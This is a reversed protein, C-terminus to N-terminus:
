GETPERPLFPGPPLSPTMGALVEPPLTEPPLGPPPETRRGIEGARALAMRFLVPGVAENVLISGLLFTGVDRSWAWPGALVLNALALAIGAQPFLGFPIRQALDPEVGVARAAARAGIWLGVARASAAGVALVAMSAFADLHVEAGIVAFFVALTPLAAAHTRRAVAEGSARTANEIVVGATLGALLPDVHLFGGIEAVLFLVVFVFLGVRRHVREVYLAVVGGLAAGIAMSGLFHLLLGVLVGDGGDGAGPFAADVLTSTLAYTVVIALDALIVLSLSMEALPGQARTETLIGIVVAPSLAALVNAILLAVVMRETGRLAATAPIAPLVTWAFLFLCVLAGFLAAGGIAGVRALRPRLAALNLELGALLAILGVAVRKVLALEHLMTPTILGLVEPGLLAGCLLFGTLHPLRAYGFLRGTYLGALVLLGIALTTGSGTMTAEAPLFSRAGWAMGLIAALLGLTRM